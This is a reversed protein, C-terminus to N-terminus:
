FVQETMAPFELEPVCCGQEVFAVALLGLHSSSPFDSASLCGSVSGGTQVYSAGNM